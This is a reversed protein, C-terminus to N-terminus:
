RPALFASGPRLITLSHDPFNWLVPHRALFDSGLRLWDAHGTTRFDQPGGAIVLDATIDAFSAGGFTIQSLILKEGDQRLDGSALMRNLSEPRLYLTGSDGTDIDMLIPLPGLLAATTPQQGPWIAFDVRGAVEAAEPAPVLLTGAPDTRFVTLVQRDYDLVFAHDQAFPTGLFGIFDPGFAPATFGFNGTPVKAPLDLSRGAVVLHPAETVEISIEQGSAAHGRGVETGPPLPLADRNLIVLDPTGNDFLMRGPRGMATVPIMPKGTVLDFGIERWLDTEPLIDARAPLALLVLILFVRM